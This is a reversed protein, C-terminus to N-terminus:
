GDPVQGVPLYRVRCRSEEVVVVAGVMLAAKCSTLASELRERVHDTRTDRLRFLVVSTENDGTLRAVEGFDLDWTIVIRDERAAKLFIEEDSARQM